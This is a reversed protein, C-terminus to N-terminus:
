SQRVKSTFDVQGIKTALGCTPNVIKLNPSFLSFPNNHHLPFLSFCPLSFLIFFLSSISSFSLSLPSFSLFLSLYPLVFSLFSPFISLSPSLSM